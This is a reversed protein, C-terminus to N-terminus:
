LRPIRSQRILKHAKALRSLKTIAPGSELGHWFILRAGAQTCYLYCTGKDIVEADEPLDRWYINGLNKM